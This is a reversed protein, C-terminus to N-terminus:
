ANGRKAHQKKKFFAGQLGRTDTDTGACKSQAWGTVTNLSVRFMAAYPWCQSHPSRRNKPSKFFIKIPLFIINRYFTSNGSKMDVRDFSPVSGNTSSSPTSYGSEPKVSFVKAQFNRGGLGSKIMRSRVFFNLLSEIVAWRFGASSPTQRATTFSASFEAM